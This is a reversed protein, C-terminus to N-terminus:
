LVGDLLLYRIISYLRADSILKKDVDLQETFALNQALSM